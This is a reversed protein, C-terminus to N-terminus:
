NKQVKIMKSIIRRKQLYEKHLEAYVGTVQTNNQVKKIAVASAFSVIGNEGIKIGDRLSSNIWITSGKGIKVSGGIIVGAAIMCQEEIVVNHSIHCLNDIKTGKGIHTDDITGRDIITNAGIEVDNEITVGGLHPMKEYTGDNNKIYGFGDPGIISGAHIEVQNGITIGDYLTVNPHLIVDDGIKCNAGIVVNEKITVNHGLVSSKHLIASPSIYGTNVTAFFNKVVKAFAKRPDPTKIIAISDSSINSKEKVILITCRLQNLDYTNLKLWSLTDDKQNELSSVGKVSTSVTNWRNLLGIEELFNTIEIASIM